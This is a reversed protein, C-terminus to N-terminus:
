KSTRDMEAVVQSLTDRFQQSRIVRLKQGVSRRLGEARRRQADAFARIAARQADTLPDLDVTSRARDVAVIADHMEGAADQVATVQEMLAASGAIADEFAEITYRLKKAAIRMQHIAAPDATAPEIDFALVKGYAKWVLGPARTGVRDVAGNRGARGDSARVLRRAGRLAQDFRGRTLAGKLRRAGKDREKQWADRLPELDDGQLTGLLIDLDRVTGLRRAVARLEAEVAERKKAGADSGYLAIATRLRRTATRMDHVPEVDVDPEIAKARQEVDDALEAIKERGADAWPREGANM